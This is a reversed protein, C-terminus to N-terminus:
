VVAKDIDIIKGNLYDKTEYKTINMLKKTIQGMRDTQEKIICIGQYLPDDQEVDAILIESTLSVVQMPQNLEHCVAGGMEVVGQLKEKQIREYEARKHASIDVFCVLFCKRNDMDFLIITKHIPISEGNATLLTYEKNSLTEGFDDDPREVGDITCFYENHLSGREIPAGIMLTAKPNADIIERTLADVILVGFPMSNLMTELREQSDKLSAESRKRVEIETELSATRKKVKSELLKHSKELERKTKKLEIVIPMWKWFGIALVLYGFLYGVVKELFAQFKTDGIIMYRNLGDFNDTIDILMGFSILALGTLIHMWGDQRRINRKIGVYLLYCFIICVIIARITELLIDIM